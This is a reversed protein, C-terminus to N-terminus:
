KLPQSWFSWPEFSAWILFACSVGDWGIATHLSPMGTMGAIVPLIFYSSWWGLLLSLFCPEIEFIVMAFLGPPTAWSKSYRSLLCSTRLEFGLIVLLFYSIKNQDEHPPLVLAPKLLDLGFALTYFIRSPIEPISSFTSKAGTHIKRRGSRHSVLTKSTQWFELFWTFSNVPFWFVSTSYYPLSISHTAQFLDRFSVSSV